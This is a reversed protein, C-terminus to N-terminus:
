SGLSGLDGSWMQEGTGPLKHPLQALGSTFPCVTQLHLARKTSLVWLFAFCLQDGYNQFGPGCLCAEGKGEGPRGGEREGQIWMLQEANGASRPQLLRALHLPEEPLTPTSGM